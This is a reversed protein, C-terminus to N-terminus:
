TTALGEKKNEYYTNEYYTRMAQNATAIRDLDDAFASLMTGPIAALLRDDSIGTFTRM